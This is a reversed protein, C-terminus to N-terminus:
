EVFYGYDLIVNGDADTGFRGDAYREFFWTAGDADTKIDAGLGAKAIGKTWVFTDQGYIDSEPGQLWGI